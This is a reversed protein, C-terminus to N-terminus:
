SPAPPLLPPWRRCRARSPTSALTCPTVLPCHCASTFICCRPPHFLAVIPLPPPCDPLVGTSAFHMDQMQWALGPRLQVMCAPRVKCLADCLLRGRAAIDIIASDDNAPHHRKHEVAAALAELELRPNLEITRYMCRSKSFVRIVSQEVRICMTRVADTHPPENDGILDGFPLDPCSASGRWCCRLTINCRAGRIWAAISTSALLVCPALLGM